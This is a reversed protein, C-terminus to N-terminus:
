QSLDVNHAKAIPQLLALVTASKGAKVQRVIEIRIAASYDAAATGGVADDSLNLNAAIQKLTALDGAAELQYIFDTMSVQGKMEAPSLQRGQIRVLNDSAKTEARAAGANLSKIASDIAGAQQYALIDIRADALTYTAEGQQTRIRALVLARDAAMTAELAPLTQEFYLDKDIAVRAGTVGLSAASLAKSTGGSAVSAIGSITLVALDGGLTTSIRQRRLQRVFDSFKLDIATICASIKFDRFQAATLGGRDVDSPRYFAMVDANSPCAAPDAADAATVPDPAGQFSACGAVLFVLGLVRLRLDTMVVGMDAVM